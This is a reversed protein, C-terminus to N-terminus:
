IGAAGRCQQSLEIRGSFETGTFISGWRGIRISLSRVPICLNNKRAMARKTQAKVNTANIGLMRLSDVLAAKASDDLSEGPKEIRFSINNSSIEKFENLLDTAGGALKKFGAPMDGGMMLTIDVRDDLKELMNRTAQSVTFRKGIYPRCPLPVPLFCLEPGGAVAAHDGM